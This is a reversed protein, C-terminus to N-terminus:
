KIQLLENILKNGFDTKNVLNAQELKATFNEKTLTNFESNSIYKAHDPIKNENGSVKTNFCYFYSFWKYRTNKIM